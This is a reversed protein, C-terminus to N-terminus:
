SDEEQKGELKEIRQEFYALLQSLDRAYVNPSGPQSGDDRIIELIEPVRKCANDSLRSYYDFYNTWTMPQGGIMQKQFSKDGGPEQPSQVPVTVTV